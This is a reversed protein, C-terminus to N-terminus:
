TSLAKSTQLTIFDGRQASLFSPFPWCSSSNINEPSITALQLQIHQKQFDTFMRRCVCFTPFNSGEGFVM